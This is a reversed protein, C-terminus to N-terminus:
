LAAVAPADARVGLEGLLRCIDRPKLFGGDLGQLPALSPEAEGVPPLQTPVGMLVLPMAGGGQKGRQLDVLSGNIHPVVAALPEALEQVDHLVTSGQFVTQLNSLRFFLKLNHLM